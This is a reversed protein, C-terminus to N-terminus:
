LFVYSAPWSGYSSSSVGNKSSSSYSSKGEVIKIGIFKEEDIKCKGELVAAKAINSDDTYINDGWVTGENSGIILYYYEEGINNRKKVANINTTYDSNEPRPGGGLLNFRIIIDDGDEVGYQKLNHSDELEEYEFFLHIERTSYTGGGTKSRIERKLKLVTISDPVDIECYDSYCHNEEKKSYKKPGRKYNRENSSDLKINLRM